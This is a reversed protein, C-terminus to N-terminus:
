PCLEAVGGKRLFSDFSKVIVDVDLFVLGCRSLLSRSVREKLKLPDEDSNSALENLLDAHRSPIFMEKCM